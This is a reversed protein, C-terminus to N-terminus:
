HRTSHLWYHFFTGELHNSQTKPSMESCVGVIALFATALIEALRQGEFDQVLNTFLISHFVSSCVIQGEAADRVRELLQDAM